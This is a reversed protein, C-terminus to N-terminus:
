FSDYVKKPSLFESFMKVAMESRSDYHAIRRPRPVASFKWVFKGVFRSRLRKRPLFLYSGLAFISGGLQSELRM